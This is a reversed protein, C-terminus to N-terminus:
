AGQRGGIDQEHLRFASNCLAFCGFTDRGREPPGLRGYDAASSAIQMRSGSEALLGIRAAASNHGWFEVGRITTRLTKGDNM